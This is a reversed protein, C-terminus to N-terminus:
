PTEEDCRGPAPASPNRHKYHSHGRRYHSFAPHKRPGIVIEGSADRYFQVETGDAFNLWGGAFGLAMLAEAQEMSVTLDAPVDPEFHLEMAADYDDWAVDVVLEPWLADVANFLEEELLGLEVRAPLLRSYLTDTYYGDSM